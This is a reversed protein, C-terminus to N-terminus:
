SKLFSEILNYDKISLSRLFQKVSLKSSV